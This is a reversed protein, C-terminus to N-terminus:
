YQYIDTDRPQVPQKLYKTLETETDLEMPGKRYLEANSEEEVEDERIDPAEAQEKLFRAHKINSERDQYKYFCNKFHGKIRAKKGNDERNSEMVINFVNFNFRPDCITAISAHGHTLIANYYEDLKDLAKQCAVGLASSAGWENQKETVKKIM